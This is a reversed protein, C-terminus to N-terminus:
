GAEADITGPRHRAFAALAECGEAVTLTKGGFVDPRRRAIRFAQPARLSARALAATSAFVERPPGDAVKQGDAMVVARQAYEAVINMDHTIVLVTQGGAHLEAMLDMMARGGRWDLGTTPEDVILVQPEIALVSAVAVKQRQGRSLSFPYTEAEDSLDVLQLLRATRLAIQEPSIGLNAPGFELEARVTSAFIQHDPNQYCYGVIRALDVTAKAAIDQGAVAVTGRDPRLLGNFHKAITTKGSGNQGVLALFEGPEVHLTVGQLAPARNPYSFWVDEAHLAAGATM